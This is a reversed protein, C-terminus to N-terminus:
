TNMIVWVLDPAVEEMAARLREETALSGKMTEVVDAFVTEQFRTSRVVVGMSEVVARYVQANRSFKGERSRPVDHPYLGKITPWVQEIRSSMFDGGLRTMESIVSLCAVVVHVETDRLRLIVAPWVANILPLLEKRNTGLIPLSVRLLDLLQYRLNASRHSLYYRAHTAIRKIIFYWPRPIPSTWKEPPDLPREDQTISEDSEANEAPEKSEQQMNDPEHLEFEPKRQLESLLGELDWIGSRERRPVEEIMMSTQIYTNSTEEVITKLVEFFGEVLRTYGHYNDLLQFISAVIDDLYQIASPGALKILAALIKPTRPSIDLTNLRLSVADLVHDVNDVLLLSVSNYGTATSINCLTTFAHQRLVLSRSAILNLIPYLIDMLALKYNEGMVSAALSLGELSLRVITLKEPSLDDNDLNQDVLMLAAENIQESARVLFMTAEYDDILKIEQRAGQMIYICMWLAVQQSKIDDGPSTIVQFCDDAISTCISSAGIIQLLLKIQEVAKVGILSDVDLPQFDLFGDSNRATSLEQQMAVLEKSSVTSVAAIQTGRPSTLTLAKTFSTLLIEEITSTDANWDLLLEVGVKTQKLLGCKVEEDHYSLITQLSLIWDYVCQKVIDVVDAQQIGLGKVFNWSEASILDDEDSALYLLTATLVPRCNELSYFCNQLLAVCFSKLANRVEPRRHSRLQVVSELAMKIQGSTAKIWAATRVDGPGAGVVKTSNTSEGSTLIPFSASDHHEKRTISSELKFDSDALAMSILVSLLDVAAEMVRFHSKKMKPTIIKCLASVCGPLINAVIDGQKVVTVVLIQLADIATISCEIDTVELAINVFISVTHGLLPINEGDKYFERLTPSVSSAVFLERLARCGSLKTEDSIFRAEKPSNPQGSNSILFTILILFQKLMDVQMTKGWSRQILIGLCQLLLETTRDDLRGGQRLLHSLPFFVYDGFQPSYVEPSLGVLTHLLDELTDVIRFKNAASSDRSLTLALQSLPVCIKRVREFADSRVDEFTSAESSSTHNLEGGRRSTM